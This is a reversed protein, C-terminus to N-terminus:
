AGVRTKPSGNRRSGAVTTVRGPAADPRPRASAPDEGHAVVRNRGHEKAQYLAEDALRLLTVRDLAQDPANSVGISVTIRDTLGPALSVITAETRSRIREAIAISVRTDVGPLLVAFEEGGYRAAIDGERMCARLVDAFVRLAEDGAPHGYKDNFKKFHDIDLMLVSLTEHGARASLAEELAMDFARSNALGTRADTNAQGHLAALLRRNGIALAAHETIRAIGSRRELPLGNPRRWYLHVAGVSEGSSLPICALTGSPAPYVPCHVSLDDALDDNVYMTGRVVGACLSLGHLPLVEAQAEGTSAEPVARDMSRNLIHIVSADPGALRRLAVLNAAAVERDDSAFSTVETFRNLVSADRADRELARGFRRVAFMAVGFAVALFVFAAITGVITVGATAAQQQTLDQVARDMEIRMSAEAADISAHDEGALAAFRDLAANDGLGVAAVAPSAVRGRWDISAAEVAKIGSVVDLDGADVRRLAEMAAQERAIAENFQRLNGATHSFVYDDLAAQEASISTMLDEAVGRVTALHAKAADLADADDSTVAYVAGGVAFSAAAMVGILALVRNGKSLFRTM